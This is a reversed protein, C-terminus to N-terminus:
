NKILGSTGDINTAFFDDLGSEVTNGFIARRYHYGMAQRCDAAGVINHHHLISRARFLTGM